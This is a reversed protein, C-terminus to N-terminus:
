AYLRGPTSRTGGAASLGYNSRWGRVFVSADEIPTWQVLSDTKPNCTAAAVDLLTCATTRAGNPRTGVRAFNAPYDFVDEVRGGDGFFSWRTRGSKGRKTTIQVVGNAAATGYLAAAAPGKIIEINEIDDPPPRRPTPHRRDHRGSRLRRIGDISSPEHLASPPGIRIRSGTGSTGSTQTVTVNAARSSLLDNVGSVIMTPLSDVTLAAISNGTERQRESAGTASITVQDLRTVTATLSADLTAEQGASVQVSDLLAAYPAWPLGRRVARSPPAPANRVWLPADRRAPPPRHHRCHHPGRRWPRPASAVSPSSPPARVSRHM